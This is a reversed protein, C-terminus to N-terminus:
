HNILIINENNDNDIIYTKYSDNNKTYTNGTDTNNTDTKKTDTKGTDTKKTDTKKTDTKATDTKTTDTKGTDAEGTYATNDTTANNMNANGTGTDAKETKIKVVEKPKKLLDKIKFSKENLRNKKKINNNSEKTTGESNYGSTINNHCTGNNSNSSSIQIFEGPFKPNSELCNNNTDYMKKNNKNNIYNKSVPLSNNNDTNTKISFFQEEHDFLVSNCISSMRNTNTNIENTNSNIKNTIISNNGNDIYGSKKKCTISKVNSSSNRGIRNSVSCLEQSYEKTDYLSGNKKIIDNINNSNTSCFVKKEIKKLPDAKKAINNITGNKDLDDPFIPVVNNICAEKNELKKHNENKQEWTYENDNDNDNDNEYKNNNQEEQNKLKSQNDQDNQLDQLDKKRKNEYYENYRIIKNIIVNYSYDKLYSYFFLDDSSVVWGHCLPINLMDFICLGKTYEFSHINTFKCNIDLGYKLQPIIDVCEIINKRYNCSCSNNMVNKKNSELLINMIKKELVIQSIKKIKKDIQLQNRLLLINTICLLPCPGSKNQLLIPVKRNIFNIWKVSYYNINSREYDGSTYIKNYKNLVYSKFTEYDSFKIIINEEEDIVEDYHLKILSPM